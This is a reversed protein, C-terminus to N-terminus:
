DTELLNKIIMVASLDELAEQVSVGSELYTAVNRVFEAIDKPKPKGVVIGKYIPEVFEPLAVVSYLEGGLRTLDDYLEDISPYKGMDKVIEGSDTVFSYVFFPM